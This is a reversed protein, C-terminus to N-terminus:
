AFLTTMKKFIFQISSDDTVCYHLNIEDFQRLTSSIESVRKVNNYM